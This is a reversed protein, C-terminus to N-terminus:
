RIDPDGREGASDAFRVIVRPGFGHDAQEFGFDDSLV